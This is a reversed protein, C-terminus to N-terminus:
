DMIFSLKKTEGLAEALAAVIWQNLSVGDEDAREALRRHISKPVRVVFKGSYEEDWRPEPIAMGHDLAVDLWVEMADAIMEVAEGPTEGQSMCGPLEKIRVFWGGEPDPILERTYPLSLYYALNKEM